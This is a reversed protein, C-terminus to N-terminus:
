PCLLGHPRLSDSLVSCNLVMIRYHSSRFAFDIYCLSEGFFPGLAPCRLTPGCPHGLVACEGGYYPLWKYRRGQFEHSDFEACQEARFDRAGEPCSQPSSPAQPDM